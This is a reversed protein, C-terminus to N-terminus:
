EGIYYMEMGYDRYIEQLVCDEFKLLTDESLREIAKAFDGSSRYIYDKVYNNVEEIYKNYCELICEFDRKNTLDILKRMKNDLELKAKKYDLLYLYYLM